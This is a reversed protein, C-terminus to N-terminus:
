EYRLAAMPDVKTARRAPIYSALLAVAALLVSIALFTAPDTASVGYLLSSMLRTLALAGVLGTTVGILALKVGQELVLTLVDSKQAGLAVRIGIEHTRQTVSFAMVGYIGVSAIVLALFSFIGLLRSYLRPDALSGNILDEMSEVAYVPQNKDVEHLRERMLGIVNRPDTRTRVLFVIQSLFLPHSVQLYPQYLTLRAPEGLWYHKVDEVVGVVTLWDKASPKPDFAIRRGVPDQNPWVHKAVAEGIIVVGPAGENDEETLYRGSLLRIRMTQFYGPSIALRSAVLQDFSDLQGEPNFSTEISAHGFPLCNIAATSSAGPLAAIRELTQQELNKLQQMSRNAPPFVTMALLNRPNFGPYVSRLRVFSKILLGAGILLILALAMESVVLTSRVGGASAPAQRSGAQKLSESLDVGSIRIAPLIGFLFGTLLSILSNFALVWGDVHIENIRPLDAGPVLALFARVGWLGFLLGLLGGLVSILLSETLLQRVLRFRSAGLSARVAMEPFRSFSRALLLNAVNACAILLIFGVAGLLVLLPHKVDGVVDEHLPFIRLVQDRDNESSRTVVRQSIIKIEAQAQQTTIGAAMRGIVGSVALKPNGAGVPLPSWVDIKSPFAFGAPMIGVVTFATGDLIIIKGLIAPDANFEARWLRESIVVANQAEGTKEERLFTRGSAPAVELTPWFSPTVECRHVVIPEGIGTLNALGASYAAIHDFAKSQKQFEMYQYESLAGNILFLCEPHPYPLPRLLVSNVVTFIASNVGFGLALTLVAVCTFGPSKRMMWFSYRLDLWFTDM